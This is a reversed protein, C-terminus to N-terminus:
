ARASDGTHRPMNARSRRGTVMISNTHAPVPPPQFELNPDRRRAGFRIRNGHVAEYQQARTVALEDGYPAM